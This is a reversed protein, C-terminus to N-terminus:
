NFLISYEGVIYFQEYPGKADTWNYRCFRSADKWKFHVCSEADTNEQWIFRPWFLLHRKYQNDKIFAKKNEPSCQRERFCEAELQEEFSSFFV